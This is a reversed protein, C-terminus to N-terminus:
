SLGYQQKLQAILNTATETQHTELQAIIAEVQEISMRKEEEVYGYRGFLEDSWHNRLCDIVLHVRVTDGANKVSHVKSFDMYWCDGPQLHYNTGDVIFDVADNTLIPIHLRFNGDQYSCGLDKHPKIESGPYLAMFRVTEKECCWEQLVSNIYPLNALLPTDKYLNSYVTKIDTACGSASRLSIVKWQGNFDKTNFHNVWDDQFVSSLESKLLEVDYQNDFKIANM